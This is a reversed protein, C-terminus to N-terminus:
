NSRELGDPMQELFRRLRKWSLYKVYLYPGALAMFGALFVLPATLNFLTLLSATIAAFFGSFMIFFGARIDLNARELLLTLRRVFDLRGLFSNLWSIESYVPNKLLSQIEARSAYPNRGIATLRARIRAQPSTQAASALLVVMIILCVVALFSFLAVLILSM